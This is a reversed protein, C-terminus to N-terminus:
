LGLVEGADGVSHAEPNRAACVGIDTKRGGTGIVVAQTIHPQRLEDLANPLATELNAGLGTLRHQETGQEIATEEGDIALLELGAQQDEVLVLTGKM